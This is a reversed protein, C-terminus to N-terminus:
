RTKEIEALPEVTIEDLAQEEVSEEPMVLEAEIVVEAQEEPQREEVPSDGHSKEEDDMFSSNLNVLSNLQSQLFQSVNDKVTSKRDELIKIDGELSTIKREAAQIMRTAKIKAEEIKLSAEKEANKLLDEQISNISATLKELGTSNKKADTVDSELSKITQSLEKIENKQRGFEDSVIELFAHVEEECYGRMKTKFSHQKIEIPTIKM